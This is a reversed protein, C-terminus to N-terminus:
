SCKEREWSFQLGDDVLCDLTKEASSDIKREGSVYTISCSKLCKVKAISAFTTDPVWRSKIMDVLIKDDLLDTSPTSRSRLVLSELNPLLVEVGRTEFPNRIGNFVGLAEVLTSTITVQKDNKLMLRSDEITLTCITPLARLLSLAQTDSLPMEDLHLSTIECQSRRVFTEFDRQPWKGLFRDNDYNYVMLEALSPLTLSTFILTLSDYDVTTANGAAAIELYRLSPLKVPLSTSNRSPSDRESHDANITLSKLNSCAGLAAFVPGHFYQFNISTLQSWPFPVPPNPLRGDLTFHRLKPAREFAQLGLMTHPTEISLTQLAPLQISSRIDPPLVEVQSENNVITLDQWRDAHLILSRVLSMGTQTVDSLSSKTRLTLPHPHSLHLCRNLALVAFYEAKSSAVHTGHLDLRINSWLPKCSLAIRRWRSCTSSVAWAPQRSMDFSKKRAISNGYSGCQAFIESLIESPLKRIPALISLGVPEAYHELFNRKVNLTLIRAELRSIETSYDAIDSQIDDLTRVVDKTQYDSIAGELRLYKRMSTITDPSVRPTPSGVKCKRCHRESDGRSNM